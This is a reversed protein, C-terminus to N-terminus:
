RIMDARYNFVLILSMNNAKIFALNCDDLYNILANLDKWLLTDGKFTIELTNINTFEIKIIEQELLDNDEYNILWYRLKAIELEQWLKNKGKEDNM